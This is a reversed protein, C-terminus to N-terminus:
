IEEPVPVPSPTPVPSPSPTPLPSPVVPLVPTGTWFSTQMRAGAWSFSFHVHDTHPHLLAKSEPDKCRRRKQICYTEWEQDWSGWIKRNWIIYMIGLRRAMAHSNGFQDTELLWSLLDAAAARDAPDSADVGWDWARGEKHESDGGDRCKRSIGFDVTGAYEALVIRQFAVVGPKPKPKCREQGEYGAYDEIAADVNPSAPRASGAPALLGVAALLTLGLASARVTWLWPSALRIDAM